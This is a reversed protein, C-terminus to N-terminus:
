KQSDIVKEIEKLFKFNNHNIKVCIRHVKLDDSKCLPFSLDLIKKLQAKIEHLKDKQDDM